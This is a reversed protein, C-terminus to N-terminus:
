PLVDFPMAFVLEGDTADDHLATWVQPDFLWKRYQTLKQRMGDIISRRLMASQTWRDETMQLLQSRYPLKELYEIAGGLTEAEANIRRDPNTAMDAIVGRVQSFFSMADDTGQSQEGLRVLNDLLEAMTSMENKTILLRPEVALVQPAEVAKDSIWGRIVDPAKTGKQSGLYALQMARGLAVLDEGAEDESLVAGEGRAIRVHDTIATVLRTAV